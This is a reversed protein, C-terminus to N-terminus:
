SKQRYLLIRGGPVLQQLLDMDVINRSLLTAGTELAQFFLSADNMLPQREQQSVGRLRALMGTVIGAEAVAQVGPATLNQASMRTVNAALLRVTAPTKPHAPDLRGLLHTLEGLTVTSHYIPRANLLTKVADPARRQLIDIYVTTDLLLPSGGIQVKDVFPLDEDRRRVPAATRQEPKLRRLSGALDFSM